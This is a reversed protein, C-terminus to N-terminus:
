QLRASLWQYSWAEFEYYVDWIYGTLIFNPHTNYNKLSIKKDLLIVLIYNFFNLALVNESYRQNPASGVASLDTYVVALSSLPIM